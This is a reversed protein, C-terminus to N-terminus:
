SAVGVYSVTVNSALGGSGPPDSANKRPEFRWTQSGACPLTVSGLAVDSGFTTITAIQTGGAGGVLVAIQSGNSGTNGTGAGSNARVSISSATGTTAGGTCGTVTVSSTAIGNQKVLGSFASHSDLAGGGAPILAIGLAAVAVAGLLILRHPSV